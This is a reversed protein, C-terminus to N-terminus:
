TGTRREPNAVPFGSSLSLKQELTDFSSAEERTLYRHATNRVAVGFNGGGDPVRECRLVAGFFRVRLPQAAKTLEPPFTLVYEIPTNLLFPKETVFFAGAASVDATQSLTWSDGLARLFVPFHMDFRPNKRREGARIHIGPALESPDPNSQM